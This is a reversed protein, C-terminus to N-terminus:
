AAEVSVWVVGQGVAVGAPRGGVDITRLDGSRADYRTLTGDRASTAWVANSGVTLIAPQRVRFGESSTRTKADIRTISDDALRVVWIAGAGAALDVVGPELRSRSLVRANTLDFQWLLGQLAGTRDRTEGAAWVAGEGAALVAGPLRVKAVIRGTDPEIRLVVDCGMWVAGGAVVLDDPTIFLEGTSITTLRGTAVGYRYVVNATKDSPYGLWVAGEGAALVTPRGVQAVDVRRTIKGTVPDIRMLKAEDPSTVWVAGAGLAVPGPAVGLPTAAALRATAQDIRLLSHEKLPLPVAPRAVSQGGRSRTLSLPLAVGAAVAVAAGGGALLLRRRTLRQSASLGFADRAKDIFERCSAYREASEKALAKRLVSDIAGALDTNRESASPIPNNVHGWLVAMVSDCHFPPEGTLCEFLVCGLAYVDARGDVPGGTVLEPAAYDATGTFPGAEGPQSSLTTLGFDSLYVHEPPDATPEAAVLINAPKVDRHVLGKGHATDLAGAVPALLALAREPELVREDDLIHRLDTGDVFRMAIFLRDEAEGAEYVPIANPHDLSAALLSERLFRGRFGEDDALRSVLVKLAVNRGLRTDLARYVEGMGGSGVSADIRYGALTDGVTPQTRYAM